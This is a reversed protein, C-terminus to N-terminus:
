MRFPVSNFQFPVEVNGAFKAIGEVLVIDAKIARLEEDNLSRELNKTLTEGSKLQHPEADSITVRFTQSSGLKVKLHILQVVSCSYFTIGVRLKENVLSIPIGGPGIYILPKSLPSEKEPRTAVNPLRKGLYYLLACVLAAIVSFVPFWGIAVGKPQIGFAWVIATGIAVMGSVVCGWESLATRNLMMHTRKRPVCEQALNSGDAGKPDPLNRNATSGEWCCKHFLTFVDFARFREPIELAERGGDHL